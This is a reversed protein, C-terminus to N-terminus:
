GSLFLTMKILMIRLPLLFPRPHTQATNQEQSDYGRQHHRQLQDQHPHGDQLHQLEQYQQLPIQGTTTPSPGRHPCWM